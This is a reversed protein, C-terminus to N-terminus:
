LIKKLFGLPDRYPILKPVVKRYNKYIEGFEAILKMEELFIGLQLYLTTVIAFSLFYQNPYLFYLAWFILLSSLYMPHRVYAYMGNQIVGEKTQVAKKVGWFEALSFTTFVARQIILGLIIICISIYLRPGNTVGIEKASWFLQYGIPVITLVAIINYFIRYGKFYIRKKVFKSILFSHLLYYFISYISFELIDM